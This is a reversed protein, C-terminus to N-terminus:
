QDVKAKAARRRQYRRDAWEASWFFAVGMAAGMGIGVLPTGNGAFILVPLGVLLELVLGAIVFFRIM